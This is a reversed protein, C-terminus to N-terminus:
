AVHTILALSTNLGEKYAFRDPQILSSIVPKIETQYYIIREFLRIIIDTVSIPRLQNLSTLPIEKPIPSILWSGFNFSPVTQSKITLNFITTVVPALGHAFERWFWHCLGVPGAATRKQRSLFKFTTFEDIVPLRALGKM